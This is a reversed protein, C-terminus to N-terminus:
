YPKEMHDAPPKGSRKRYSDLEPAYKRGMPDRAVFRRVLGAPVFVACFLLGMLIRTNVRGLASAFRMWIRHVLRLSGPAALALVVFVASALWPWAPWRASFLWPLLLGFVAAIMAGMLLGFQRLDRPTTPAAPDPSM